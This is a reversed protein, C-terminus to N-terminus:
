IAKDPWPWPGAYEVHPTASRDGGLSVPAGLYLGDALGSDRVIQQALEPTEAYVRFVHTPFADGEAAYGRIGYYTTRGRDPYLEATTKYGGGGKM